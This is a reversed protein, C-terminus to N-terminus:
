NFPQRYRCLYTSSDADMMYLMLDSGMYEQQFRMEKDRDVGNFYNVIPGWSRGSRRVYAGAFKESVDKMVGEGVLNQLKTLRERAKRYCQGTFASMQDKLGTDRIRATEFALSMNTVNAVCSINRYIVNNTGQALRMVLSPIVPVKGKDAVDFNFYTGSPSGNNHRDKLSVGEECVTNFESGTITIEDLPVVCFFLIVMMFIFSFLNSKFHGFGSNSDDTITDRFFNFLLMLFPLFVLWIMSFLQYLTDYMMWGYVTLFGELYSSANM